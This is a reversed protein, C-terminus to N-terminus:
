PRTVAKASGVLKEIVISSLKNDWAGLDTTDAVIIESAGSFNDNDFLTIKLGQPVKVSCAKNDGISLSATTYRGEPLSMSLGGFNPQSYFVAKPPAPPAPAAPTAPAPLSPSNIQPMPAGYLEGGPEYPQRYAILNHQRVRLSRFPSDNM